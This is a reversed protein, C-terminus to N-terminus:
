KLIKKAVEKNKNYTGFKGVLRSSVGTFPTKESKDGLIELSLIQEEFLKPTVSTL